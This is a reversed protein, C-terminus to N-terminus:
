MCIAGPIGNRISFSLPGMGAELNGKGRGLGSPAQGRGGGVAQVAHVPGDGRDVQLAHRVGDRHEPLLVLQVQHPRWLEQLADGRTGRRAKTASQGPFLAGRGDRPWIKKNMKFLIDSM